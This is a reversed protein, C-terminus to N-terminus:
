VPLNCDVPRGLLDLSDLWMSLVQELILEDAIYIKQYDWLDEPSFNADAEVLESRVRYRYAHFVWDHEAFYPFRKLFNHISYTSARSVAVFERCGDVSCPVEAGVQGITDLIEQVRAPISMLDEM